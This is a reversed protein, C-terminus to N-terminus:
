RSAEVINQPKIGLDEIFKKSIEGLKDVDARRFLESISQCDSETVNITYDRLIPNHSGIIGTSQFESMIIELDECYPYPGNTDFMLDNFLDSYRSDSKIQYFFTHIGIWNRKFSGTGGRSKSFIAKIVDRIGACSEGPLSKGGFVILNKCRIYNKGCLVPNV